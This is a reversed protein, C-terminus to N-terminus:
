QGSVDLDRSSVLLLRGSTFSVTAAQATIENSVGRTSGQELTFDSVLYRTGELSLGTVDGDFPILGFYQYRNRAVRHTGPGVLAVMNYGDIWRLRAGTEVFKALIGLNGLTHDLRGGLGGIVDIRRYGRAYALDVAAESDTIDKATPLVIVEPAAPNERINEITRQTADSLDQPSQTHGARFDVRGAPRASSDFDGIYVDPHLRLVRAVEQGSDGCIVKEYVSFDWDDAQLADLGQVGGVVVLCRPEAANHGEGVVPNEQNDLNSTM